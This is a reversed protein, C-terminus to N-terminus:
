GNRCIMHNHHNWFHLIRPDCWQSERHMAFCHQKGWCAEGHTACTQRHARLFAKKEVTGFANIYNTVTCLSQDPMMYILKLTMM